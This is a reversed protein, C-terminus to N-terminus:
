SRNHSAKGQIMRELRPQYLSMAQRGPQVCGGLVATELLMQLPEGLVGVLDEDITYRPMAVCPAVRLGDTRHRLSARSWAWGGKRGSADLRINEGVDPPNCSVVSTPRGALNNRNMSGLLILIAPRRGRM